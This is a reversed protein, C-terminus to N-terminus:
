CFDMKILKIFSILFCLSERTELGPIELAAARHAGNEALLVSWLCEAAWRVEMYILLEGQTVANPNGRIADALELLGGIQVLQACFTDSAACLSSLLKLFTSPAWQISLHTTRRNAERRAARCTAVLFPLLTPSSRLLTETQSHSM